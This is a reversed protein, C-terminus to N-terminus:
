LFDSVCSLSLTVHMPARRNECSYPAFKVEVNLRGKEHFTTGKSQRPGYSIIVELIKDLIIFSLCM